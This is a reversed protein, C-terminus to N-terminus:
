IDEEELLQEIRQRLQRVQRHNRGGASIGVVVNEHQAVGPFYFDCKSRDSCVNVLKGNAHATEAVEENLASDNTCAFVIDAGELCGPHYTDTTWTLAGSQALADVEPSVEPAIVELDGVFPLITRIRRLAITGGGVFVVKKNNLDVFLPFFAGVHEFSNASDRRDIWDWFEQTGQALIKQADAIAQTNETGVNTSFSDIDFVECHGLDKIEPHVDSPIALDFIAVGDQNGYRDVMGPTLTYHPSTTASMVVNCSALHKYRDTYPISRCGAPITVCGHTYQRVTVMVNAGQQALTSAALRGYEGNGIVMCTAQTLDIGSEELVTLAADVATTYARTFHVGSKVHKAATVAQRFLVELCSDAVGHERSYAIANKVQSIVQDEAVIASRLGCSVQFLHEVAEDDIRSIFYASYNDADLRHADCLAELLADGPLPHGTEDICRKPAPVSDFSAWLETRNCTTLLVVGTAGLRERIRLLEAPRQEPPITFASRVDVPALTHDTGIMCVIEYHNRVPEGQNHRRHAGTGEAPASTTDTM